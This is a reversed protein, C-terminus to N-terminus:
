ALLFRMVNPAGYSSRAGGWDGAMPPRGPSEIKTLGSSPSAAM